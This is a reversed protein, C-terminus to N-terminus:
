FTRDINECIQRTPVEIGTYNKIEDHNLLM